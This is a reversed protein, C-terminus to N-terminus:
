GEATLTLSVTGLKPLENSAPTVDSAPVSLVIRAVGSVHMVDHLKSIGIKEGFNVTYSGTSADINEPDFFTELADIVAQRLEDPDFGSRYYVTATVPVIEYPAAYVELRQTLTKPKDETLYKYVANRLALTATGGDNPVLYVYVTNEPIASDENVTLAIARSVSTVALANAEFDQKTISRENTKFLRPGKVKGSDITERDSGGDSAEPNTVTLKVPLGATTTFSRTLRTLRNADVRGKEGGGIRYAVNISAGDQPIAGNIGDGFRITAIDSADIDVTYHQSASSSSLFDDVRTWPVAEIAVTESDWIFPTRSLSFSQDNGGDSRGVVEPGITQGEYALVYGVPPDGVQNYVDQAQHVGAEMIRHSEYQTRLDNALVAASAMDTANPATVANATDSVDHVGGATLARHAEYDSKLENLLIIASVLDTADPSSVVNTTDPAGHINDIVIQRHEEYQQKLDNALEVLATENGYTVGAAIILDEQIEYTITGDKTKVPENKKVIVDDDCAKDLEFFLYTYAPTATALQYGIHLLHSIVNERETANVLFAENIQRDQYYNLADGVHAVGEAIVIGVNTLEHDTWDPFRQSLKTKIFALIADYDRDTYELKEFRAM